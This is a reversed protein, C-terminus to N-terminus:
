MIKIDNKKKQIEKYFEEKKLLSILVIKGSGYRIKIRDLSAALSASPDRVTKIERIDSYQISLRIFGFVILLSNSNLEAFNCFVASFCFMEILAFMASSFVLVFVEDDIVALAIIPILIAAAFIMIGYFWKSVKGKFRM